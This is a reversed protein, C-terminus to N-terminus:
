LAMTLYQLHPSTMRLTAFSRKRLFFMLTNFYAGSARFFREFWRNCGLIGKFRRYIGFTGPSMHLNVYVVAYAAAHAHTGAGAPSKGHVLHCAGPGDIAKITNGAAVTHLLAWLLTQM